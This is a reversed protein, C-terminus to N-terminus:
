NKELRSELQRLDRKLPNTYPLLKHQNNSITAQIKETTKAVAIVATRQILFLSLMIFLTLGLTKYDWEM